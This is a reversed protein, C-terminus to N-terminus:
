LASPLAAVAQVVHTMQVARGEPAGAEIWGHRAAELVRGVQPGTPVGLAIVDRGSALFPPTRGLEAIMAQTREKGAENASAALLVLVAAVADTGVRHALHRLSSVSAPEARGSLGELAGAIREIRDFEENSLRLGERLRLADERVLVTLAALRFAPYIQGGDGEAVAAFRSLHPLGGIIPMLLGSGAMAAVVEAAGPAVLLKMLEARVRERSLGALGARGAIC